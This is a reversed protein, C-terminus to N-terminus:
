IASNVPNILIIGKYHLRVDAKKTLTNYILQALAVKYFLFRGQQCCSRNVPLM